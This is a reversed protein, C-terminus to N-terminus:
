GGFLIPGGSTSGDYTGCKEEGETVLIRRRYDLLSSGLLIAIMKLGEVQSYGRGKIIGILEEIERSGWDYTGVESFLKNIWATTEGEWKRLDSIFGRLEEVTMERDM